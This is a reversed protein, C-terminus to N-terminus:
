RKRRGRSRKRRRPPPRKAAVAGAVAGGSVFVSWVYLSADEGEYNHRVVLAVVDPLDLAAGLM